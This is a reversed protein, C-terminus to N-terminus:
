KEVKLQTNLLTKGFVMIKKTIKRNKFHTLVGEM